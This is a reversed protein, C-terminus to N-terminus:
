VAINQLIYYLERAIELSRENYKEQELPTDDFQKPDDFRFPLRALAGPIFPCNEDAHGCTMMAIFHESPNIPHDFIKSFCHAPDLNQGFYVQYEPNNASSASNYKNNFVFGQARLTEVARPNFATIEVGGSYSNIPLDFHGALTACWVQALQSRRSNHTCIFNLAISGHASLHEQIVHSLHDLHARREVTIDTSRATDITQAIKPFIISDIPKSM